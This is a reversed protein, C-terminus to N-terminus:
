FSLLDFTEVKDAKGPSSDFYIFKILSYNTFVNVLEKIHYMKILLSPALIIQDMWDLLNM